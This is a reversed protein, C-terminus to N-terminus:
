GPKMVKLMEDNTDFKFEPLGRLVAQEKEAAELQAMAQAQALKEVTAQQETTQSQVGLAKILRDFNREYNRGQLDIVMLDLLWMPLTCPLYQLPIIKLNLGEAYLFERQVWKSELSNPSLVVLFFQSQEIAAQIESGWRTGGELGSLDYWVELGATQLDAALREVFETDKRSYSIFVQTM